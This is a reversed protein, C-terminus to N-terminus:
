RKSCEAFLADMVEDARKQMGELQRGETGAAGFVADRNLNIYGPRGLAALGLGFRPLNNGISVMTPRSHRERISESFLPQSALALPTRRCGFVDCALLDCADCAAVNKAAAASRCVESAIGVTVLVVVVPLLQQCQKSHLRYIM